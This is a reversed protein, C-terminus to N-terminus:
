LKVGKERAIEELQRTMKEKGLIIVRTGVPTEALIVCQGQATARKIQEMIHKRHKESPSEGRILNWLRWFM